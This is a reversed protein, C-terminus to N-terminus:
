AANNSVPTVLLFSQGTGQKMDSAATEPFVHRPSQREGLYTVPCGCALAYRALPTNSEFCYLRRSARFLKGMQSASLASTIRFTDNEDFATTEAPQDHLWYCELRRNSLRGDICHFHRPDSRWPFRVFMWKRARTIQRKRWLRVFREIQRGIRVVRRASVAVAQRPEHRWDTSSFRENDWDIASKVRSQTLAIMQELQLEFQEQAKTLRAELTAVDVRKGDIENLGWAIGDAGLELQQFDAKTQTGDPIIVVPCGCLLAEYIIATSNDFCYLLKSARFLKGLERKEPLRRTIEFSQEPDCYGDKWTSKGVYYCTLSRANLDADDCYFLNRDITPMYLKGAIRNKIYPSFADSYSFVLESDAFVEDGGLLGPRNLVWRVMTSAGLANGAETEGYIAIFGRACLAKASDVDIIPANLHSAAVVGRTTFSPYGRRNLEDCLKHLCHVGASNSIYPGSYIVYGARPLTTEADKRTKLVRAVHEKVRM